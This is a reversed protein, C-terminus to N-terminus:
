PKGKWRRSAVEGEKKDCLGPLFGVFGGHGACRGKGGGKEGGVERKDEERGTGRGFIM